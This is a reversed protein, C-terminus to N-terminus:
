LYIFIIKSLIKQFMYVLFIYIKKFLKSSSYPVQQLTIVRRCGEVTELMTGRSELM